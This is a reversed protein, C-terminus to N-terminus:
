LEPKHDGEVPVPEPEPPFVIDAEHKQEIYIYKGKDFSVGDCHPCRGARLKKPIIVYGCHKCRLVNTEM